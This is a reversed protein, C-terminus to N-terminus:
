KLHDPFLTGYRKLRSYLTYYNMGLEEAWAYVTKGEFMVTDSRNMRQEHYTAWRCNNPEYNGNNDIRDLTKDEPAEGMDALFNEFSELWRDCVTIGRGGYDKYQKYKPNTCRTRMNTWVSYTRSKRMGHTTKNKVAWDSAKEKHFCGCSLTHGSRLSAGSIVKETGCECRCKWQANKYKDNGAYEIVTLRDFVAGTLDIRKKM